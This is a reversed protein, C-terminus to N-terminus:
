MQEMWALGKATVSRYRGEVTNIKEITVITLPRLVRSMQKLYKEPITNSRKRREKHYYTCTYNTSSDFVLSLNFHSFMSLSCRTSCFKNKDSAFEAM